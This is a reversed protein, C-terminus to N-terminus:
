INQSSILEGNNYVSCKFKQQSPRSCSVKDSPIETTFLLNQGNFFYMLCSIGIGLASGLLTDGFIFSTLLNKKEFCKLFTKTFVDLLFYFIFFSVVAINISNNIFMPM